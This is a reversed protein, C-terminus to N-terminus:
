GLAAGVGIAAVTERIAAAVAAPDELLVLHGAVVPVIRARPLLAALELQSGPPVSRDRTTIVVTVPVDVQGLRAEMGASDRLLAQQEVRFATWDPGTQGADLRQAVYERAEDDLKSGTSRISTDTMRRGTRRMFSASVASIPRHQLLTDGLHLAGATGVSAVLVLAGVRDPAQLAAELAVGGSWSYGVIVAPRDSPLQELLWHANGAWDTAPQEDYGPRAPVLVADPSDLLPLVRHWDSPDGPQGHLLALSSSRHAATM